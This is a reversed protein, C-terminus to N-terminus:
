GAPLPEAVSLPANREAARSRIVHMAADEQPVTFAPVSDKIIGAKHWAISDITSGLLALHDLGLSAIGCVIPKRVANTSDYQGGVGVEMVAVDVGESLFAHVAMLNLFRFYVPIDRTDPTVKKLPPTPSTLRDYVENFYKTFLQKSIPKGDIRIRECAEILHPSTFLGVKLRRPSDVQQMISSVFACTSGKGKTGAVHIIHLRDLDEPTYGIKELYANFEPTSNTNLLNGSDKIKQIAEPSSQRKNLKDIAAYYAANIAEESSPNCEQSHKCCRASTEM